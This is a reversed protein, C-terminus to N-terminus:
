NVYMSDFCKGESILLQATTMDDGSISVCASAFTDGLLDHLCIIYAGDALCFYRFVYCLFM